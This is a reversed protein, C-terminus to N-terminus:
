TNFGDSNNKISARPTSTKVNPGPNLSVDGAALIILLSLKVHNAPNSRNLYHLVCTQNPNPSYTSNPITAHLQCISSSVSVNDILSVTVSWHKDFNTRGDEVHLLLKHSPLEVSQVRIM